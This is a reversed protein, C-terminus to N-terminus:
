VNLKINLNPFRKEIDEISQKLSPKNWLAYLAWFSAHEYGDKNWYQKERTIHRDIYRQKRAPDKHLTYDSMGRAGFSVTKTRGDERYIIADLKKSKNKSKVIDINIGM